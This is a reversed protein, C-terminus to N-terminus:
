DGDPGEQRILVTARVSDGSQELRFEHHGPFAGELRAALNRLGIGGPARRNPTLRGSNVVELTLVGERLHTRVTVEVPHGDHGGHKLANEVLAHLLFSPVCIGDAEPALEFAVVLKDEFRVREIELYDKVVAVEEGVTAEARHASGLTYRLFASLRTVMAQARGRDEAILARLSALANFLFHPNLQYRLMELQAERALALAAVSKTEEIQSRQWYKLALYGGSWALLIFVHNMAVFPLSLRTFFLDTSGRALYILGGLVAVWGVAAIMSVAVAVPAAATVPRGSIELHAYLRGMATSLGFGVFAWILKFVALSRVADGQFPLVGLFYVVGFLLWASAHGVWVRQRSTVQPIGAGDHPSTALRFQRGGSSRAVLDSM